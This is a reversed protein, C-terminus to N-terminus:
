PRQWRLYPDGNNFNRDIAWIEQFDWGADTFIEANKMEATFRCKAFFLDERCDSLSVLEERQSIEFDWFSNLIRGDNVGVFAGEYDIGGVIRGAVYSTSIEGGNSKKFKNVGVLGGLHTSAIVMAKSYSNAIKMYNASVLGGVYREGEVVGEVVSTTIEHLNTGVLGGVNSSGEVRGSSSTNNITGRNKGVLAGVKNIGTINVNKLRINKIISGQGIRRFLGVEDLDSSIKLNYITKYAGDFVGLFPYQPSGIMKFNSVEKLEIDQTLIFNARMSDPHNGISNLQAASCIQFPHAPTGDGGAFGSEKTLCAQAPRSYAKFNIAFLMTCVILFTSITTQKM